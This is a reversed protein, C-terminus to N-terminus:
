IAMENGEISTHMNQHAGLADRQRQRKDQRPEDEEGQEMSSCEHCADGNTKEERHRKKGVNKKQSGRIILDDVTNHAFSNPSM